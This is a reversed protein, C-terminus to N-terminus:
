LTSGQIICFCQGCPPLLTSQLGNRSQERLSVLPDQESDNLQNEQGGKVAPSEWSGRAGLYYQVRLTKLHLITYCGFSASSQGVHDKSLCTQCLYSASNETCQLYLPPASCQVLFSKMEDQLGSFTHQYGLEISSSIPESISGCSFMYALESM